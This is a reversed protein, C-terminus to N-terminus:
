NLFELFSLLFRKKLHDSFVEVHIRLIELHDKKQRFPIETFVNLSVRIGEQYVCFQLHYVFLDLSSAVYNIRHKLKRM